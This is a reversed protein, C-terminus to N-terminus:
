FVSWVLFHFFIIVDFFFLLQANRASKLGCLYYTLPLLWKGVCFELSLGDTTLDSKSDFQLRKRWIAIRSFKLIFSSVCSSFSMGIVSVIIGMLVIFFFLLQIWNRENIDSGYKLVLDIVLICTLFMLTKELRRLGSICKLCAWPWWRAFANVREVHMKWLVIIVTYPTSCWFATLVFSPFCVIQNESTKLSM